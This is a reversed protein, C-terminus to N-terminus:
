RRASATGDGVSGPAVSTLQATPIYSGDIKARTVDIDPHTLALVAGIAKVSQSMQPQDFPFVNEELFLQADSSGYLKIGAILSGAAAEDIKGDEAFFRRLEEPHALMDDIFDYFAGLTARVAEPDREILADSAVVVDVISDPVDKSSLTITHGQARAASTDPEWLLALEAEHQELMELASSSQSVSVLEFDPLHLGETSNALEDLLMESPSNGTYALVPKTGKAASERVLRPLDDMSKLYPVDVTNLVLADAGLSQDIVGVVTGAPRRLVYQDLSTVAFDSRGATLDAARMEQCAQDVYLLSYGTGQLLNPNRFPAYGAWADGEVV